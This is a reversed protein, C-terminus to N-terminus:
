RTPSTSRRRSRIGPTAIPLDGALIREGVYAYLGQDAGMPQVLSPLRLLLLACALALLLRTQMLAALSQIITSALRMRPRRKLMRRRARSRRAWKCRARVAARDPRVRDKSGVGVGADVALEDDDVVIRGVAGPADGVLERSLMAIVTTWRAPLSPSPVATTSPNSAALAGITPTM